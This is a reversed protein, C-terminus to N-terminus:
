QRQMQRRVVEQEMKARAMAIRITTEPLDGIAEAMADLRVALTAVEDGTAGWKDTRKKRELMALFVEALREVYHYLDPMRAMNAIVFCTSIYDHMAEADENNFEGAKLRNVIAALETRWKLVHGKEAASPELKFVLPNISPLRVTRHTRKRSM